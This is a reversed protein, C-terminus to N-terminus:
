WIFWPRNAIAYWGIFLATVCDDHMGEDDPHHYRIAGAPLRTAEYAELEGILAPDDIIRIDGKEFALSLAMVAEAKSQNTTLFPYVPLGDGILQDILPAGMSNAEAHISGPQFRDYLAKLRATQFVYDIQNFRDLYVLSREGVDIVAIVTFDRVAGWDIGFVYEHGDIAQAQRAATAAARVGRFVGGAEDVFEAMIEQQFTQTPTTLWIREIESFPIHPNEYPHPRRVLSGGEIGIGLTPVQWAVSDEYHQADSHERWFWNRGRPTGIAWLWGNTDILMPRLVEYWASSKVDGVEDIVVGDATHGRANDPNDLSRYIIAGGGPFDATMRQLTFRAYDGVGHRTEDWGVRVQDFTPAGWLIRKGRIAEDVAISMSM